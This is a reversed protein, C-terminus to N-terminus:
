ATRRELATVTRRDAADSRIEIGTARLTSALDNCAQAFGSLNRDTLADLSVQRINLTNHHFALDARGVLETGVRLPCVYYGHRRKSAPKYAELAHEFDFIRSIRKRYWILNDFPGVFAADNVASGTHQLANESAWASKKWGDVEVPLLDTQRLLTRVTANSIRLYDAFDDVTGIGLARGARNLLRVLCEDDTLVDTLYNAPITRSALDFLRNNGEDRKVCALEGSWVLFQVATKTPSWDWGGQGADDGDGLERLTLAGADGIRALLAHRVRNEPYEKRTRSARRRFAWLPWDEVPVLAAAHAPYEFAIVRGDHWLADDVAAVPSRERLRSAITM